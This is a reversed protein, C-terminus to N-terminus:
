RSIKANTALAAPCYPGFICPLLLWAHVQGAKRAHRERM